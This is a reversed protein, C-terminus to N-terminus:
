LSLAKIFRDRAVILCNNVTGINGGIREAIETFKMGHMYKLVFVRRQFPNLSRLARTLVNTDDPREVEGRRFYFDTERRRRTEKKEAMDRALNRTSILLYGTMNEVAPLRDQKIWVNAFVAQTLDKAQDTNYTLYKALRFVEPFHERYLTTFETTTM